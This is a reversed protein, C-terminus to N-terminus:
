NKGTAATAAEGPQPPEAASVLEIARRAGLKGLGAAWGTHVPPGNSRDLEVPLASDLRHSTRLVDGPRLGVVTGLDLDFPELRVRVSVLHSRLASALPILPTRPAPAARPAASRRALRVVAGGAVRVLLERDLWGLAVVLDGSWAGPADLPEQEPRPIGLAAVLRALLDAWAREVVEAAVSRPAPPAAEPVEGFIALHLPRLPGRAEEPRDTVPPPDLPATTWWLGPAAADLARWGAARPISGAAVADALPECRLVPVDWRATTGAWARRWAAAAGAAAEAVRARDAATTARLPRARATSEAPSLLAPAAPDTRNASV